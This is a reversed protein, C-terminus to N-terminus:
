WKWAKVSSQSEEPLLLDKAALEPPIQGNEVCGEVNSLTTIMMRTGLPVRLQRHEQTLIGRRRLRLEELWWGTEVEMVMTELWWRITIWETLPKLSPKTNITTDPGCSGKWGMDGRLVAANVVALSYLKWVERTWSGGFEFREERRCIASM